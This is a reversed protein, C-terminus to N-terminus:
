ADDYLRSLHAGYWDKLPALSPHDLNKRLYRAVRPIHGRYQPKGDRKDLRAFIGLIKTARQAGLIAYARAFGAMDFDPAVARRAKAYHVLLRLELDDPVTVRADQALSAVDYAPHGMVCDQFDILGLRKIGERAGLWLLNPSHYDRLVWTSRANVIDLLIQRWLNVFTARQGSSLSAGAVHPAYWDPLLEIEILLADLDYAPVRYPRDAFGRVIDSQPRSHLAALLEAAELYREAIPAGDEVVGEHGFDEILALGNERDAAYIRPASLDMNALATAMALFPDITEALRAIASYSRGFRVPPGDPRPPSIMLIATEGNSKTLREYARTSADGLMFVRRADAFGARELLAEIGRGRALRPGMKGYGRIRIHRAVDRGRVLAMHVDLRDGALARGAHEAWEVLVLAGEATEDWGLEVLESPDAIRYLDAHVIPFNMGEYIQMLTFTPSPVEMLDDGTLRRVLARALTTKGAGLEGSLTILDGAQLLDALTAALRELAVEDGVVLEWVGPDNAAGAGSDSM